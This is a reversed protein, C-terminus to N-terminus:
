ARKNGPGEIAFLRRSGGAGRKRRLLLGIFVGELSVMILFSLLALALILGVELHLVAKTVGMLVTIAVLGFVFTFVIAGILTEPRAEPSKIINDSKTGSLKEGCYNCFSLGPKLAVGSFSCYM